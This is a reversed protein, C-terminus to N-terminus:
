SGRSCRRGGCASGRWRARGSPGAIPPVDAGVVGTLNLGHCTGCATTKGQVIKGGVIKMGGTTVLDEGKKVSGPPVYAIWGSHPNRLTENQEEDASMEIIRGAIPEMGKEKAAQALNGVYRVKPSM